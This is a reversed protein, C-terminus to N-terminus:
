GRGRLRARRPPRARLGPGRPPFTSDPRWCTLTNTGDDVHYVGDVGPSVTLGFLDGGSQDAAVVASQFGRSTTEVVNGDGGNATLVNGNPALTM